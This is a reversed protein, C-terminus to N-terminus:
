QALNLTALLDAPIKSFDVEVKKVKSAALEESREKIKEDVAAIHTAETLTSRLAKLNRLQEDGQGARSGPNKAKYKDGGNLRTDKTLWNGVMGAVYGKIKDETNYKAKAEDSFQVKGAAIGATVIQTVSARQEKSLEIRTKNESLDTGLVSSIANFVAEKQSFM